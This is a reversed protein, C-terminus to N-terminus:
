SASRTRAFFEEISSPWEYGIEKIIGDKNVWVITPVGKIQYLDQLANEEDLFTNYDYGKRQFYARVEEATEGVDILIIKVGQQEWEGWITKLHALQEHCHPCWTAWFILIAEQGGRAESLNAMEGKLRPLTLDPAKSNVLSGGVDQTPMPGMAFVTSISLFFIMLLKALM